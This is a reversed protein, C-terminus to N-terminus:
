EGRGQKNQRETNLMGCAAAIDEGRSARITAFTGHSTLMDRFRLMKKEGVGRLESDPIAHFRILNVRCELGKLLAVLAKADADSDNIGDFLIYEFSLRRQGSWDYDKLMDVVARIEYARESPMLALRGQHQPHHLSIAVHCRSEDLLRKLGPLLGVSSVTIRRPSWAMGWPATLIELARMVPEINDMPEGQGMLVMNTIEEREPLGMLQALIDGGTLQELFGQRGTMCFACKMKCGVQSSVCITARTTEPIYVTEVFHGTATPFLYKVTGDVSRQSEAPERVGVVFREDLAERLSKPLDTMSAFDRAGKQYMWKALQAGNFRKYGMEECLKQLEALTYGLLSPKVPSATGRISLPMQPTESPTM